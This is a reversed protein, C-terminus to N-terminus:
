PHSAAEEALSRVVQELDVITYPKALHADPRLAFARWEDEVPTKVTCMVVRTSALEPDSRIRELVTWGDLDPMQVDLVVVDPRESALEELARTGDEALRVDCGATRLVLASFTRVDADDDVLLIQPRRSTTRDTM